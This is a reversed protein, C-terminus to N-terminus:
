HERGEEIFDKVSMELPAMANRAARMRRAVEIQHQRRQARSQVRDLFVIAVPMEQQVSPLLEGPLAKFTRGDYVGRIALM